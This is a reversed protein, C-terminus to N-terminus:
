FSDNNKFLELYKRYENNEFNDYMFLNINAPHEIKIKHKICNDLVNKLIEINSSKICLEIEKNYISQLAQLDDESSHEKAKQVYSLDDFITAAFLLHKVINFDDNHELSLKMYKQSLQIDGKEFHIDAINYSLRCIDKSNNLKINEILLEEYIELAKEYEKLISFANARMMRLNRKDDESIKYTKEYLEMENLMSNFEKLMRLCIIINYHIKSQMEQNTTRDKIVKYIRLAEDAYGQKLEINGRHRKFIIEKEFNSIKFAIEVGKDVYSLAKNYDTKKYYYEVLVEYSELLLSTKAYATNDNIIKELTSISIQGKIYSDINNELLRNAQENPEELLWSLTINVNLLSNINKVLYEGSKKIGQGKKIIKSICNISLDEGALDKLSLKFQSKIMRIKENATTVKNYFLNELIIENNNIEM